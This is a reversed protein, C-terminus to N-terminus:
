EDKKISELISNVEDIDIGTAESIEDNEEFGLLDKALSIMLRKANNEVAPPLDTNEEMGRTLDYYEEEIYEEEEEIKKFLRRKKAKERDFKDLFVLKEEKEEIDEDSFVNVGEKELIYATIGKGAVRKGSFTGDYVLNCGCSPSGEKLIARNIGTERVINLVEYAGKIFSETNNNGECDVLKGKKEEIIEKATGVIEVPNRPTNMGGMQEPCVLIARGERLLKMCKENKNNGGSYKCNVGCLCASVIYM